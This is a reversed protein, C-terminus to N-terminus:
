HSNLCASVRKLLADFAPGYGFESNASNLTKPCISTPVGRGGLAHAVELERLGPYAKAFYQTTGAPGGGPPQCVPSNVAIVASTDGSKDPSCDCASDGAVCAKPTPLRFICAFQLDSNDPINQEHGNIPNELPNQSTAPALASHTLPQTGTRPAISEVMLPDTAAVFTSPDGLLIPWRGQAALGAADLYELKGGAISATTALDQWPVGVMVSFTVLSQSRTQVGSSDFFLPNKAPTGANNPIMLASLGLSYRTTPYLLDFGFRQKQHFCRLNLSDNLADWTNYTGAAAGMCVPDASLALCGAPPAAETQACSRCCPDNPNAACAATAKPMHSSAGVFWGVGDDRISCDNEDSLALVAVASDPRLFAAREALLETDTGQRVTVNNVKTV